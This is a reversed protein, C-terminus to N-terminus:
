IHFELIMTTGISISHLSFYEQFAQNVKKYFKMKSGGFFHSGLSMFDLINVKTATM